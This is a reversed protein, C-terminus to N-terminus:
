AKGQEEEFKAQVLPEQADILTVLEELTIPQGFPKDRLLPSDVGVNIQNLMRSPISHIHGHVSYKKPRNGIEMPYHSLWMTYGEVKLKVGVEHLEHLYGEKLLKKVVTSSDHNGQILIKHGNLRTLVEVWKAYNGFVFDGVHYVTDDESVVNNWNTVITDEMEELSDVKRSEFSIINKHRFHTDSTFFNAM